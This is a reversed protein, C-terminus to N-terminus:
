LPSALGGDFLIKGLLDVFEDVLFASLFIGEGKPSPCVM